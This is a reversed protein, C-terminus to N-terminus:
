FPSVFVQLAADLAHLMDYRRSLVIPIFAEIIALRAFWFLFLYNM